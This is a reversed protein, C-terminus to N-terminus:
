GFMLKTVVDVDVNNRLRYGYLVINQKATEGTQLEINIDSNFISKLEVEIRSNPQILLPIPFKFPRGKDGIHQIQVEVDNFQRTSQANRVTFKLPAGKGSLNNAGYTRYMGILIFSSEQGVIFTDKKTEQAGFTAAPVPGSGFDVLQEYDYRVEYSYPWSVDSYKGINSPVLHKPLVKKLTGSVDDKSLQPLTAIHNEQERINAEEMRVSKLEGQKQIIADILASRTISM